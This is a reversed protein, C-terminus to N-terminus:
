EFILKDAQFIIKGNYKLSRGYWPSFGSTKYIEEAISLNVEPDALAYICQDREDPIKYNFGLKDCHSPTNIQCLGVDQTSSIIDNVWKSEFYCIFAMRYKTNTGYKSFKELILQCNENTQCKNYIQVARKFNTYHNKSKAVEVQKIPQVQPKPEVKQPIQTPIVTLLLLITLIPM